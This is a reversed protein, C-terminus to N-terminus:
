PAVGSEAEYGHVSWGPIRGRAFLEIRTTEDFHPFMTELLLRAKPPKGSHIGRPASIVSSPIVLPMPPQGRVCVLLPEHQQRAYFGTGAKDKVWVLHSRYEFGWAAVVDLALVLNAPTAWMFLLSDRAAIDPIPRDGYRFAKIEDYTLTPYHNDASTRDRGSEGHLEFRWPPDCYLLSFVRDDFTTLKAKEAVAKHRDERTRLKLHHDVRDPRSELLAEFESEPVPALKRAHDAMGKGIRADELTPTEDTPEMESGRRLTGKNKPMVAILEGLKREARLRIRLADLELQRNGAQRAYARLAMMKDRVDKVEDLSSADALARCAADYRALATM